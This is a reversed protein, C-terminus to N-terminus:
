NIQTMGEVERFRVYDGDSYSHRKDEHVSVIGEKDNSIGALIFSKTPEGDVDDIKHSDGFDVFCYGAAGL